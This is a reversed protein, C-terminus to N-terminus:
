PQTLWDTSAEGGYSSLPTSDISRIPQHYSGQQRPSKRGTSKDKLRLCCLDPRLHGSEVDDDNDGAYLDHPVQWVYM